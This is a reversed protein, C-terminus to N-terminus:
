TKATHRLQNLELDLTNHQSKLNKQNELIHKLDDIRKQIKGMETVTFEIKKEIDEIHKESDQKKL